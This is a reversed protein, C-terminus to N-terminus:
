ASSMAVARAQYVSTSPASGYKSAVSGREPLDAVDFPPDAVVLSSNPRTSAAQREGASGGRGAVGAPATM